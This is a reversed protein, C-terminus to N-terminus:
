QRILSIQALSVDTLFEGTSTMVTMLPTGQDFRITTVDGVVSKGDAQVEVTKGLLGLSQNTSEMTVLYEMRDNMEKTQELSTFQALRSVFEQNDMPKLPDQYSLQTLLIKFLDEQGISTKRTQADSSTLTSGISQLDM